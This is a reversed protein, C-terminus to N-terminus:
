DCAHAGNELFYKNSKKWKKGVWFGWRRVKPGTILFTWCGGPDVKVTHQHTAQRVAIKGRKMREKGTPSCDTYGGAIVFTIFSWPHDHFHRDDDSHLWHHLRLSFWPTELYWRKIYVGTQCRLEEGWKLQYV